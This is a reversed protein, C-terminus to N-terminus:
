KRNVFINSVIGGIAGGIVTGMLLNWNRNYAILFGLGGGILASTITGESQDLLYKEKDRYKVRKLDDLIAQADM